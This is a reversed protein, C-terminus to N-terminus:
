ISRSFFLVYPAYQEAGHCYWPSTQQPIQGDGATLGAGLGNTFDTSRHATRRRKSAGGGKCIAAYPVTPPKTIPLKKLISM